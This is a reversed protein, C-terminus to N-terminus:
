PLGTGSSLSASDAAGARLLLPPAAEGAEPEPEPEADAAEAVVNRRSLSAPAPAPEPSPPPPPAPRPWCCRPRTCSDRAGSGSATDRRACASCDCFARPWFSCFRRAEDGGGTNECVGACGENSHVSSRPLPPAPATGAAEVSPRVSLPSPLPRACCPAPPSLLRCCCAADAADAAALSAASRRSRSSSALCASALRCSRYADDWEEAPIRASNSQTRRAGTTM